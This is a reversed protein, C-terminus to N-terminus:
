WSAWTTLLVKKGLLAALSHPVGALDPLTIDPAALGLLATSREEAGEGLVWVNAAANALVPNGLHRWFAAVDVSGGAVIADPLPVCLADRCMGEPKLVWRTLREVEDPVLALGEAADVSFEGAETLVTTMMLEQETLGRVRNLSGAQTL